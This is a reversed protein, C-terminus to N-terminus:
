KYGQPMSTGPHCLPWPGPCGFPFPAGMGLVPPAEPGAETPAEPLCFLRESQLGYFVSSHAPVLTPALLSVRNEHIFM